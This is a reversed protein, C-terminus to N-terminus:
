SKALSEKYVKYKEKQEKIEKKLGRHYNELLLHEDAAWQKFKYIDGVIKCEREMPVHGSKFKRYYKVEINNDSCFERIMDEVIYHENETLGLTFYFENKM